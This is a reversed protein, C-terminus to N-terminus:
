TAVGVAWASPTALAGQRPHSARHMSRRMCLQSACRTAWTSVWPLAVNTSGLCMALHDRQQVQALLPAHSVWTTAPHWSLVPQYTSPQSARSSLPTAHLTTNLTTHLTCLTTIYPPIHLTAHAGRRAHCTRHYAPHHPPLTTPAGAFLSRGRGEVERMHCPLLMSRRAVEAPIGNEVEPEFSLPLRLAASALAKQPCGGGSKLARCMM